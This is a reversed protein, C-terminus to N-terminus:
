QRRLAHIFPQGITFTQSGASQNPRFKKARALANKLEQNEVRLKHNEIKLENNERKLSAVEAKLSRVEEKLSDIEKRLQEIIGILAAPSMTALEIKNEM